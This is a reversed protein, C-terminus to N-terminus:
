HSEGEIAEIVADHILSRVQKIRQSGCDPWVRNTLLTVSVQRLPDCWLSTGTFGLHGFSGSSFYRGSQSPQSPTDWGLARSTGAPLAERATFLKVTEPRLLPAGGTLMCDAFVALDIASGFLGAHGSVGGMVSANEDHVEGQVIRHRFSRDDVTPPIMSKWETPPCYGTSTMGLPAFVERAAFVDLPTGAIQALIEGLLIFGLDSYDAHSMPDAALPTTAALHILEDRTTAREFLREYAPLGSSHALLMRLTVRERRPETASAFAALMDVVRAELNLLGREHLLMACATTAVVKTVSALDYVTTPNVPSSAAEYTFRGISKWCVLRRQQTVALCCGPFAHEGIAQGVIAFARAFQRDQQQFAPALGRTTPSTESMNM